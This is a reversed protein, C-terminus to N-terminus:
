AEPSAEPKTEPRLKDSATVQTVTSTVEYGLMLTVITDGPKLEAGAVSHVGDKTTISLGRQLQYLPNLASLQSTLATLKTQHETLAPALKQEYCRACRQELASLKLDLQKLRQEMLAHVKDALESSCRADARALAKTLGQELGAILEFRLKTSDVLLRQELAASRQNLQASLNACRERCALVQYDLAQNLREPLVTSVNTIQQNLRANLANAAANLRDCYHVNQTILANLQAPVQELRYLASQLRQEQSSTQREPSHEKLCGEARLLRQEYAELRSNLEAKARQLLLNLQIEANHMRSVLLGQLSTELRGTLAEYRASLEDQRELMLDHQRTVLQNLFTMMQDRTIPTILEAAATPTSVRIDASLDCIPRDEDHGVASIIPVPSMGVMRVVDADSFCLLDEFSGGGRGIIIADFNAQVQGSQIYFRKYNGPMNPPLVGETAMNYARTLAAVLSQPATPGQVLTDFFTLRILPNRRTANFIIDDIVRGDCSTVVGVHNLIRPLPRKREPAFWGEARLMAEREKLEEMIRGRGALQMMEVKFQMRGSKLYVSPTGVILVKQGLVPTFEVQHALSAFMVCDLVSQEDKISFYWHNRQTLQSLEGVVLVRGMQSLQANTQELAQTVSLAEQEYAALDTKSEM